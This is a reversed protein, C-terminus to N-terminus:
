FCARIALTICSAAEFSTAFFHLSIALERPSLIQDQFWSAVGDAPIIRDLEPRPMLRKM